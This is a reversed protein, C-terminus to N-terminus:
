EPLYRSLQHAQVQTITNTQCENAITIHPWYNKLQIVNEKPKFFLSLVYAKKGEGDVTAGQTIRSISFNYANSADDIAIEYSVIFSSACLCCILPFEIVNVSEYVGINLSATMDLEFWDGNMQVDYMTYMNNESNHFEFAYLKKNEYMGKSLLVYTTNLASLTFYKSYVTSQTDHEFEIPGVSVTNGNRTVSMSGTADDGNSVFESVVTGMPDVTSTSWDRTQIGDCNVENGVTLDNSNMLKCYSTATNYEQIKLLLSDVDNSVLQINQIMTTGDEIQPLSCGYLSHFFLAVAVLASMISSFGSTKRNLISIM